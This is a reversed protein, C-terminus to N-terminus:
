YIVPLAKKGAKMDLGKNKRQESKFWCMETLSPLSTLASDLQLSIPTHTKVETQRTVCVCVCVAPPRVGDPTMVAM